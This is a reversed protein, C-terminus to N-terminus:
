HAGLAQLVKYSTVVVLASLSLIATVSNVKQVAGAYLLGVLLLVM